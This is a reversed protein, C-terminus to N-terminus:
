RGSEAQDAARRLGEAAVTHRGERELKAAYTRTEDPTLTVENELGLVEQANRVAVHGEVINIIM